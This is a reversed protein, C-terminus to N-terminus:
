RTDNTMMRHPLRVETFMGEVLHDFMRACTPTGM